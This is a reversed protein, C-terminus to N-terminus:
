FEYFPTGGGSGVISFSCHLVARAGACAAEVAAPSNCERSLHALFVHRWRPADVSLLLDRASENSLHGHRGSIRQKVSWPRKSDDKLM